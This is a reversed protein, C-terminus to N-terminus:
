HCTSFQPRANSSLRDSMASGHGDGDQPRAIGRQDTTPCGTNTGTDIAVSGANLPFYAPSGTLAGLALQVSTVQTFTTACTGDTSINNTSEPEPNGYCDGGSTSNAAITNKITGTGSSTSLRIGGGSTAYNGSFTSHLVTLKGWLLHQRDRDIHRLRQPHCWGHM